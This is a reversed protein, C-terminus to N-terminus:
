RLHKNAYNMYFGSGCGYDLLTKNNLEDKIQNLFKIQYGQHNAFPYNYNYTIVDNIEKLYSHDGEGYMLKYDDQSPSPFVNVTKCNSCKYYKFVKDNFHIDPYYYGSLDESLCLRCNNRM